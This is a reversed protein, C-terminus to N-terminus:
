DEKGKTAAEEKAAAEAAKKAAEKEAKEKVHELMKALKKAGDKTGDLSQVAYVVKSDENVHVVDLDAANPLFAASRSLQATHTSLVRLRYPRVSSLRSKQSRTHLVLDEPTVYRGGLRAKLRNFRKESIAKEAVTVGDGVQQSEPDHQMRAEDISTGRAVSQPTLMGDHPQHKGDEGRKFVRKRDALLTQIQVESVGATPTASFGSTALSPKFGATPTIQDAADLQRILGTVPRLNEAAKAANVPAPMENGLYGRRRILRRLSAQVALNGANDRGRVAAKHRNIGTRVVATKNSIGERRRERLDKGTGRNGVIADKPLQYKHNWVDKLFAGTVHRRTDAQNLQMESSVRSSTSWTRVETPDTSTRRQVISKYGHHLKSHREMNYDVDEVKPISQLSEGLKMGPTAPLVLKEGHNDVTFYYEGTDLRHLRVDDGKADDGKAIRIGERQQAASKGRMFDALTMEESGKQELERPKTHFVTSQYIDEEVRNEPAMHFRNLAALEPGNLKDEFDQAEKSLKHEGGTPLRFYDLELAKERIEVERLARNREAQSMGAYDGQGHEIQHRQIMNMVPVIPTLVDQDQKVSGRYREGTRDIKLAASRVDTMNMNHVGPLHDRSTSELTAATIKEAAKPDLEEVMALFPPVSRPTLVQRMERATDRGYLNSIEQCVTSMQKRSERRNRAALQNNCTCRRGGQLKSRCM